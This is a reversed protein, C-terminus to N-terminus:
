ELNSISVKLKIHLGPRMLISASDIGWAPASSKRWLHGVAWMEMFFWCFILGYSNNYRIDKKPRDATHQLAASWVGQQIVEYFSLFMNFYLDSSAVVYFFYKIESCYSLSYSWQFEFVSDFVQTSSEYFFFWKPFSDVYCLVNTIGGEWFYHLKVILLDSSM